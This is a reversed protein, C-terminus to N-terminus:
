TQAIESLTVTAGYETLLTEIDSHDIRTVLRGEGDVAEVTYHYQMNFLKLVELLTLSASVRVTRREVGRGGSKPQPPTVAREPPAANKTDLLSAFMFVAAYALTFNAARSLSVFYLAVLAACCIGGLIRVVLLARKAGVKIRLLSMLIRGGDLPYVPLLNFVAISVNVSALLETYPYLSPAVWWLAALLVAMCLNLFPGVVAVVAEESPKLHEFAGYLVAGYPYLTIVGSRCRFFSAALAHAYEHVVATVIYVLFLFGNGSLTLVAGFIWFLPHIKFRFKM